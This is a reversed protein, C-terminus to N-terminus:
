DYYFSKPQMSLLQAINNCRSCKRLMDKSDMGDFMKLIVKGLTTHVEWYSDYCMREEIKKVEKVWIPNYKINELDQINHKNLYEVNM